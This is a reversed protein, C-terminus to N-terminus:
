GRTQVAWEHGFSVARLIDRLVEERFVPNAESLRRGMLFYGRGDEWNVVVIPDIPM